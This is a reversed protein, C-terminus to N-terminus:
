GGFILTLLLSPLSPLLAFCLKLGAYHQMGAYAQQLPDAVTPSQAPFLFSPLLFLSYALSARPHAAGAPSPERGLVAASPCLQERGNRLLRSCQWARLPPSAVPPPIETPILARSTRGAHERPPSCGRSGAAHASRADGAGPSRPPAGRCAALLTVQTPTSATPTSPRRPPSGM